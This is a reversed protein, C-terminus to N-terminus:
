RKTNPINAVNGKGAGQKDKDADKEGGGFQSGKTNNDHGKKDQEDHGKNDEKGNM